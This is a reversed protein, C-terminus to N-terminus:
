QPWSAAVYYMNFQWWSTGVLVCITCMHFTYFAFYNAVLNALNVAVDDVAPPHPGGLGAALLYMVLGFLEREKSCIIEDLWM